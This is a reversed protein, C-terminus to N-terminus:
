RFCQTRIMRSTPMADPSYAEKFGGVASIGTYEKMKTFFEWARVNLTVNQSYHQSEITTHSM